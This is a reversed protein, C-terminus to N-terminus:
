CRGCVRPSRRRSRPRMASARAAHWPLGKDVLAEPGLTAVVLRGIELMELDHGGLFFRLTM